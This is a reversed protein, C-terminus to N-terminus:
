GAGIKTFCQMLPFLSPDRTESTSLAKRINLTSLKSLSADDFSYRKKIEKCATILFNRCRIYFDTVQGEELNQKGEPTNLTALVSIGLYMQQPNMFHDANGPDIDTVTTKHIYEPRMYALFLDKYTSLMKEHLTTIM